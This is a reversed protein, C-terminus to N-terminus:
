WRNFCHRSTSVHALVQPLSTHTPVSSIPVNMKNTPESIITAASSVAESKDCNKESNSVEVDPGKILEVEQSKNINTKEDNTNEPEKAFKSKTKDENNITSDAGSSHGVNKYTERSKSKQGASKLELDIESQIKELDQSCLKCTRGMSNMRDLFNNQYQRHTQHVLGKEQGRKNCMERVAYTKCPPDM